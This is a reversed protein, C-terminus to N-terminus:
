PKKPRPKPLSPLWPNQFFQENDKLFINLMLYFPIFAFILIGIIFLHKVTEGVKSRVKRAM